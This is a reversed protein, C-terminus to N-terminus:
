CKISPSSKEERPCSSKTEPKPFKEKHWAVLWIKTKKNLLRLMLCVWPDVSAENEVVKADNKAGVTLIDLGFFRTFISLAHYHKFWVCCM